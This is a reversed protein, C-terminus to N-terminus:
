DDKNSADIVAKANAQATADGCDEEEDKAEVAAVKKKLTGEELISKVRLTAYQKFSATAGEENENVINDIVQTLLEKTDM